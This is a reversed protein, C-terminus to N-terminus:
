RTISFAIASPASRDERRAATLTLVVSLAFLGTATIALLNRQKLLRQAQGHSISLDM